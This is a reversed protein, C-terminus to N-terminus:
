FDKLYAEQKDSLVIHVNEKREFHNALLEGIKNSALVEPKQRKGWVIATRSYMWEKWGMGRTEQKGM